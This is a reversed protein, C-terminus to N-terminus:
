KLLEPQTHTHVHAHTCGGHSHTHAQTILTPPHRLIHTHTLPHTHTHVCVRTLMHKAHAHAHAHTSRSHSQSQSHPTLEHDHTLMPTLPRHTLQLHAYTHRHTHDQTCTVAQPLCCLCLAGEGLPRWHPAPQLSSRQTALPLSATPNTDTPRGPLTASAKGILQVEVCIM